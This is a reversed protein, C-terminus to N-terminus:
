FYKFDPKLCKFVKLIIKEGYGNSRWLKEDLIQINYIKVDTM